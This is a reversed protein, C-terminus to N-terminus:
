QEESPRYRAPVEIGHDTLFSRGAGGLTFVHAAAGYRPTPLDRLRQLYGADALRKLRRQSYRNEDQSAPYLLRTLQAATLYGFRNVAALIARDVEGIRPTTTRHVSNPRSM